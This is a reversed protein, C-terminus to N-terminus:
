RNGHILWFFKPLSLLAQKYVPEHYSSRALFHKIVMNITRYVQYLLNFVSETCQGLPIVSKTFHASALMVLVIRHCIAKERAKLRDQCIIKIKNQSANLEAKIRSLSLLVFNLEGCLCQCLVPCLIARNWTTIMKLPRIQSENGKHCQLFILFNFIKIIIHFSNDIKYFTNLVSESIFKFFLILQHVSIITKKVRLKYNNSSDSFDFSETEFVILIFLILYNIKLHM